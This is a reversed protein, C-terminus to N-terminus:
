NEVKRGMTSEPGNALSTEDDRLQIRSPQFASTATGPPFTKNERAIPL